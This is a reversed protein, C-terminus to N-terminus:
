ASPDLLVKLVGPRAAEAFAAEADRLAFRASIMPQVNLKKARLLANAPEFRGCRSGVLTIENVILHATDISVEDHVTSKMVIIGRPETMSIASKLGAASGTCEVVLHCAAKPLNSAFAVRAGAIRAINLKSEHKGYLTVARGEAVLVQTILLGLKGDGLVAVEDGTKVSVQDLIQCAAAVPEVFVAESDAVDDPVLHLNAEPLTFFEAFAGPHNLIGLVTRSRCHRSLFQACM